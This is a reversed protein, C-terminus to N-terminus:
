PHRESRSPGSPPRGGTGDTILTGEGVVRGGARICVAATDVSLVGAEVVAPEGSAWASMATHKM